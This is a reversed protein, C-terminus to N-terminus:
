LMSHADPPSAPERASTLFVGGDPTHETKTGAALGHQGAVTIRAHEAVVDCAARRLAM